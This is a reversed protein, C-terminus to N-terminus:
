AGAGEALAKPERFRRREGVTERMAFAVAIAAISAAVMCWAPAVPNGTWKILAAIIFQTTGGFVAVAISYILAYLRSRQARPLGEAVSVNAAATSLAYLAALMAAGILLGQESPAAVLNSFVPYALVLLLIRPLIVMPKRGTFDSLFGGALGFLMLCGGVVSTSAFATVPDLALTTIAYTTLYQLTYNVVTGSLILVIGLSIFSLSASQAPQHDAAAVDEPLTEPLTRRLWFGLPLLAAGLLLAVRWGWADVDAPPLQSSIALGVGGALLIAMGQSAIQWGGYMGKRGPPAAEILMATTPGVEGGIAFGQVLRATVVIIAGAVGIMHHPPTLAIVLLAGGMLSFSLLMAPKRGVRDGYRGIYHAGVPRGLFGVGFTALALLLGSFPDDTPFFNRSIQLAFFGFVTFDYFELVNGMVIGALHRRKISVQGTMVPTRDRGKRADKRDANGRTM